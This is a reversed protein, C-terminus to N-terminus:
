TGAILPLLFEQLRQAEEPALRDFHIGMRDGGAIRVVSGGGAVPRMRESLHMRIFVSSRPPFIRDSKVLIGSPSIDVSQAELEEVGFQLLVRSRLSIRRTRRRDDEMTGQAARILKLLRDKDIPKYL